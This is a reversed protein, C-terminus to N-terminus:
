WLSFIFQAVPKRVFPSTSMRNRAPVVPRSGKLSAGARVGSSSRAPRPLTTGPPIRTWVRCHRWSILSLRSIIPADSLFMTINRYKTFFRSCTNSM